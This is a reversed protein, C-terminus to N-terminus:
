DDSIWRAPIGFAEGDERRVDFSVRFVDVFEFDREEEFAEPWLPAAIQVSFETDERDKDLRLTFADMTSRADQLEDMLDDMESERVRLTLRIIHDDRIKYGAGAGSAAVASGGVGGRARGWPLMPLSLTMDGVVPIWPLGSM